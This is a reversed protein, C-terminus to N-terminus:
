FEGKKSLELIKEYEKDPILSGGTLWVLAKNIKTGEKQIKQLGALGAAASVEIRQDELIKMNYVFELMDSDNVTITGNIYNKVLNFIFESAKYVALGDAETRKNLGIESVARPNEKNEILALAMCPANVPEVFFIKIKNGFVLNLAYSIGGPAGGVGCPIFIYLPDENTPNINEREIQKNLKFISAAYGLFLEESNEDDIFFTNESNKAKERGLKVAESYTGNIQVIEANAKRLIEKKWEKADNSMYVITKIGFIQSFLGVSLALNGTSGVIIKYKSFKNEEIYRSLNLPFDEEIWNEKQSIKEVIDIIANLSGRAKVSGVVPLNNDLKLYLDIKNFYKDNIKKTKVLDSKIIGKDIKPYKKQILSSYKIFREYTKKIDKISYSKEERKNKNLYIVPLGSKIKELITKEM